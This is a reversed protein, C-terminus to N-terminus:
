NRKTIQWDPDVVRSKLAILSSETNLSEEGNKHNTSVPPSFSFAKKIEM